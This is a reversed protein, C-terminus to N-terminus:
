NPLPLTVTMYPDFTISVRNCDPCHLESKYQGVMLDTIISMNRKHYNQLSIASMIEDPRGDSEISEVSPKDKIRNLDEHLLDM